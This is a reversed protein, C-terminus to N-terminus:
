FANPGIWLLLIAKDSPMGTAMSRQNAMCATWCDQDRIQGVEDILGERNLAAILSVMPLVLPFALVYATTGIGLLALLAGGVSGFIAIIDIFTWLSRRFSTDAKNVANNVANNVAQEAATPPYAQTPSSQALRRGLLRAHGAHEPDSAIRRIFAQPSRRGIAIVHRAELKPAGSIRSCLRM